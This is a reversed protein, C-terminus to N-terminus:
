PLINADQAKRRQYELEQFRVFASYDCEMQARSVLQIQYRISNAPARAYAEAVKNGVCACFEEVQEKPATTAFPMREMCQGYQLGAIAPKNPCERGVEEVLSSISEEMGTALRANLFKYKICECDQYAAFLSNQACMGQAMEAEQMLEDQLDQPLAVFVHQMDPFTRPLGRKPPPKQAYSVATLMMMGVAFIGGALVMKRFFRAVM